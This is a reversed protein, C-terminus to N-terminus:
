HNPPAAGVSFVTSPGAPRGAAHAPKREWAVLIGAGAILAAFLVLMGSAPNLKRHM